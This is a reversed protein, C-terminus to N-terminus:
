KNLNESTIKSYIKNLAVNSLVSQRSLTMAFFVVLFLLVTYYAFRKGGYYLKTTSVLIYFRYVIGLCM